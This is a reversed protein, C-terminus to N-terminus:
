GVNEGVLNAIAGVGNGAQERKGMEGKDGDGAGAGKRRARRREEARREQEIRKCKRACNAIRGGGVWEGQREGKKWVGGEEGGRRRRVGHWMHVGHPTGAPRDDRRAGHPALDACEFARM